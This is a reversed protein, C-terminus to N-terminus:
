AARARDVLLRAAKYDAVARNFGAQLKELRRELEALYIDKGAFTQRQVDAIQREQGQLHSLWNLATAAKVEHEFRFPAAEEERKYHDFVAGANLGYVVRWFNATAHKVEADCVAAAWARVKDAPVDLDHSPLPTRENRIRASLRLFAADDDLRTPFAAASM